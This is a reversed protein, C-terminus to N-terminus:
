LFPPVRRIATWMSRVSVSRGHRSRPDRERRADTRHRARDGLPSLAASPRILWARAGARPVSGFGTPRPLRRQASRPRSPLARPAAVM